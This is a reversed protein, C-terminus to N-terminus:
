RCFGFEGFVRRFSDISAGFYLLAQGQLPTGKENGSEDLFRLRGAPFCIAAAIHGARQFWKTETANNVLCIGTVQGAEVHDCLKGVFKTVLDASYPPNM